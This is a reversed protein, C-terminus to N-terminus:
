NNHTNGDAETIWIPLHFTATQSITHQTSKFLYFIFFFLLMLHHKDWINTQPVGHAKKKQSTKVDKDCVM